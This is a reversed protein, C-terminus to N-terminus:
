CVMNISILRSGSCCKMLETNYTRSGCCSRNGSDSFYPFLQGEVGCCADPTAGTGQARDSSRGFDVSNFPSNYGQKSSKIRCINERQFHGWKAHLSEEWEYQLEALNTALNRDCECLSKACSEEPDLCEITKKGTTSDYIGTFEYHTNSPCKDKGYKMSACKYCQSLRKCTKDIDDVPEGYGNLPEDPGEPFCWCGYYAHKGFQPTEQLYMVM